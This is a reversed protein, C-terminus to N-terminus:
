YCGLIVFLLVSIFAARVRKKALDLWIIYGEESSISDQLLSQAEKRFTAAKNAYSQQPVKGESEDMMRLEQEKVCNLSLVEFDPMLASLNKLTDVQTTNSLLDVAYKPAIVANSNDSNNAATGLGFFSSLQSKGNVVALDPIAIPQTSNIIKTVQEASMASLPAEFPLYHPNTNLTKYQFMATRGFTSKLRFCHPFQYYKIKDNLYPAIASKFDYYVVIDRIIAEQKWSANHTRRILELLALPTGIFYSNFIAKSIVSFYQDISAHTHGVILFNILVEDFSFNEILLSIYAFMEKNKNEGCNDFQLWGTRPYRFNRSYILTGLDILAQRIVEVMINAGGGVMASTRYVFVTKIPGCYVEIGIIRSEIFNDGKSESPFKPTRCTYVTMGDPFLLFRLPNGFEDVEAARLKLQDLYRREESQQSLHM